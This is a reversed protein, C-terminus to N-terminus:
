ECARCASLSDILDLYEKKKQAWGNLECYEYGKSVLSDRLEPRGIVDLMARSMDNSDGSTFFHVVDRNFYFSDIKTQSVVVPVGQSMFEMIKTSYAENGFSDARKPVVGLDANAIVGAIEELSVGSFFKVCEELGLQQALSKLPSIGEGGSGAYIHFEANPVKSKVDAFATIAIDLGQHWQVSGPFLIVFKGDRRTKVRRYFLEEDVHNILVSCRQREISRSIVTEYWLDNSIIVHDAVRASMKEVAKLLRVYLPKLKSQFKNAFLEPVLDHIDLIIKAGTLKPYWAAFILFDPMNHVHIVDYHSEKHQRTLERSSRMLFGLLRFAYSWMSRENQERHQVRYVRVGNITPEAMQEFGSSSLAIVDVADGRKVLAEAYRRVRNDCEYTTYALMCVKKRRVSVEQELKHQNAMEYCSM